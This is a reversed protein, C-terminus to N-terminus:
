FKQIVIIEKASELSNTFSKLLIEVFEESFDEKSELVSQFSKILVDCIMDVGQSLQNTDGTQRVVFEVLFIPGFLAKLNVKLEEGNAKLGADDNSDDDDFNELFLKWNKIM